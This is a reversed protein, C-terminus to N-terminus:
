DLYEKLYEPLSAEDSSITFVFNIDELKAVARFLGELNCLETQTIRAVGDIFVYETDFNAAAIGYIFGKFAEASTINYEDTYICKIDFNLGVSHDDRSKSVLIVNGKAELAAANAAEMIKKTKGSGKPGCILKLM